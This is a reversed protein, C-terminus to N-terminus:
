IALLNSNLEEIRKDRSRALRKMVRNVDDLLGKSLDAAQNYFSQIHKEMRLCASFQDAASKSDETKPIDIGAILGQFGFNTELADTVSSYYAKKIRQGFQKNEKALSRFLDKYDSYNDACRNYLDASETEIKSIYNIVSSATKLEM